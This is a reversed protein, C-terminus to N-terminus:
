ERARQEGDRDCRSRFACGQCARASHAYRPAIRGTIVDERRRYLAVIESPAMLEVKHSRRAASMTPTQVTVYGYESVRLGTQSEVAMRQASLQIVDTAYARNKWRTKLEVLAVAGDAGQYARDIRAILSVPDRARFQKEMFLLRAGALADPRSAQELRWAGTKRVRHLVRALVISTAAVAAACWGVWGEMSM